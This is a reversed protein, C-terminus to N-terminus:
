RGMRCQMIYSASRQSVQFEGILDFCILDLRIYKDYPREGVYFLAFVSFFNHMLVGM